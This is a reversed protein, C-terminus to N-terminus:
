SNGTLPVDLAKEAQLDNANAIGNLKLLTEETTGFRQAIAEVSNGPEVVHGYHVVQTGNVQDCSCPLPIRLKDGVNIKDPNPINNAAAIQPFTVLLAFIDRAIHDLGDGGKVIYIPVGNSVGKGNSCMCPFPIKITQKAVVRHSPPTSTPLNNAGLLTYLNEIGFRTQIVSLTTANPVVYGVLGQCKANTTTCNFASAALHASILLFLGLLIAPPSSITLVTM